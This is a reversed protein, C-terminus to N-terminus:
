GGPLALSATNRKLSEWWQWEQGFSSVWATAFLLIFTAGALGIFLPSWRKWLLFALLGCLAIQPKVCLTVAFLIGSLATWNTLAFHPSVVILSIAVVSPNGNLVGVYPPSFFLCCSAALLKAQLSNPDRLLVTISAAFCALSLICVM